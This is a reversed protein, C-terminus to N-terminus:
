ASTHYSPRLRQAIVVASWSLFLNWKQAVGTCRTVCDAMYAMRPGNQTLQCATVACSEAGLSLVRVSCAGVAHLFSNFTEKSCTMPMTLSRLPLNDRHLILHIHSSSTRHIRLLHSRTAAMQEPTANMLNRSPSAAKAVIIAVDLVCHQLQHLRENAISL